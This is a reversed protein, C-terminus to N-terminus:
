ATATSLRGGAMGAADFPCARLQEEHTVNPFTRGEENRYVLPGLILDEWGDGDLDVFRPSGCSPGHLDLEDLEFAAAPRSRPDRGRVERRRPRPLAAHPPRRHRAYRDPRRPRLRLPLRRRHGTMRARDSGTTTSGAVDIGRDTAVEKMLPHSAEATLTRVIRASRIWGGESRHSREPRDIRLHLHASFEAPGGPRSEGWMRLLCSADWPKDYEERVTPSLGMLSLKVRPPAAFRPTSQFLRGLWPGAGLDGDPSAEHQGHRRVVRGWEAQRVVERTPNCADGRFSPALMRAIGARDARGLASALAAFGGEALINGRHEVEWLYAREAEALPALGPNDPRPAPPTM